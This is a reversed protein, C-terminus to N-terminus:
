RCRPWRADSHERRTPTKASLSQSPVASEPSGAPKHRRSGPVRLTVPCSAWRPGTTRREQGDDGTIPFRRRCSGQVAPPRFRGIPGHQKTLYAAGDEHCREAIINARAEAQAPMASRIQIQMRYGPHGRGSGFPRGAPLAPPGRLSSISRDERTGTEPSRHQYGCPIGTRSQTESSCEFAGSGGGSQDGLDTRNGGAVGAAGSRTPARPAGARVM